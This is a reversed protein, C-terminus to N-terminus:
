PTSCRNSTRSRPRGAGSHHHQRLDTKATTDHQAEVAYMQGLYYAPNNNKATAGPAVPYTWGTLSRPWTPSWRRITPPFPITTRTSCRSQRRSEARDAGAHVAADARPRLERQRGHGQGCEGKNNNAMNLYTGMAPSLTVASIIDRYNGFANDRFIRWYPPFAYAPRVTVALGGLDALPRLGRAAALQDGGNVTNQYFAAQVPALNTNRKGNAALLPQDPLDSMSARFQALLWDTIGMKELVAIQRPTPGWTAQELFRAAARDTMQQGFASLSIWLLCCVRKM